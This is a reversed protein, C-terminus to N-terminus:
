PAFIDAGNFSGIMVIVVFVIVLTFFGFTIFGTKSEIYHKTREKEATLLSQIEHMIDNLYAENIGYQTFGLLMSCLKDINKNNFRSKFIAIAEASTKTKDSFNLIFEKLAEKYRKNNVIGYTYDLCDGLYIGSTLQIKLNSYTNFIDMLMNDNDRKNLYIFLGETIFYGAPIGLICFAKAGLLYAILAVLVGGFVKILIYRSPGMNYNGLRYMIGNKSLKLKEKSMSGKLIFRKDIRKSIDKGAQKSRDRLEFLAKYVFRAALFAMLASILIIGIKIVLGITM